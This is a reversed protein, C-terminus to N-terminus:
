LCDGTACAALLGGAMAVPLLVLPMTFLLWWSKFRKIALVVCAVWALVAIWFLLAWGGFAMELWGHEFVSQLIPLAVAIAVPIITLPLRQEGKDDSM